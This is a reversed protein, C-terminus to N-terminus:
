TSLTEQSADKNRLPKNLKHKITMAKVTPIKTMGVPPTHYGQFELLESKDENTYYYVTNPRFKMGPYFGDPIPDGEQIFTNVLGNTYTKAGKCAKLYAEKRKLEWESDRPKRGLKWSPDPPETAFVEDVGNTYINTGLKAAAALKTRSANQAIQKETRYLILDYQEIIPDGKLYSGFYIGDRTAYRNRGTWFVANKANGLKRTFEYDEETRYTRWGQEIYNHFDESYLKVSTKNSLFYIEVVKNPKKADSHRQKHLDSQVSDKMYGVLNLEQILPDTIELFYKKGSADKYTTKEKRWLNYEIKLKAAYKIDISKPVSRKSYKTKENQVNLIYHLAQTQSGGFTKWLIVHAIIHQRATLDISNWKNLILDKYGPFLDKAKPCIHHSEYYDETKPQSACWEIFKVYRNLYHPNHPKSSLISLIRQM